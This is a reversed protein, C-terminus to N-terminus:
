LTAKAPAPPTPVPVIPVAAYSTLLRRTVAETLGLQASSQGVVAHEAATRSLYALLKRAANSLRRGYTENGLRTIDLDDGTLWIRGDTVAPAQHPQGAVSNVAAVYAADSSLALIRAKEAPSMIGTFRLLRQEPDYAIRAALPDPLQAKFDVEAPQRS